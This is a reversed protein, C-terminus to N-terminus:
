GLTRTFANADDIDFQFDVEGSYGTCDPVSSPNPISQNTEVDGGQLSMSKCTADGHHMTGTRNCHPCEQLDSRNSLTLKNCIACHWYQISSM